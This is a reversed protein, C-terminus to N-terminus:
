CCSRPLASGAGTLGALVGALVAMAASLELLIHRRDLLDALVGAPLSVFLVPLLSAAQVASTLLAANHQHVLM